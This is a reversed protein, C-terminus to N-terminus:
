LLEEPIPPRVFPKRRESSAGFARYNARAQSLSLNGNPGGWVEDADADDQGDDEWFCVPCIEDGAREVLTKYGCCPCRLPLTM